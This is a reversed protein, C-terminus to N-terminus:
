EGIGASTGLGLNMVGEQYFRFNVMKNQEEQGSVLCLGGILNGALNRPFGCITEYPFM